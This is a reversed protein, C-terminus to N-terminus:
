LGIRQLVFKVDQRVRSRLDLRGTWSPQSKLHDLIESATAFWGNRASVARIRDEFRPDAGGNKTFSGAGLHAYVLTVGGEQELRDLNEDKLLEIFNVVRDGNATPFWYNVYPKDDLRYPMSPSTALLNIDQYTFRRVYQIRERAVDGWFYPSHPDHGSFEYAIAFSAAWRLPAVAYLHSGWYLNEKNLSHNVQMRPYHGLTSRFTEIGSLTDARLSSGGRVGHLAIEFGKAQLDVIFQRYAPDSLSEGRDPDHETSHAPLVWVTKTTRLGYRQLVEYIPQLRELTAMDTDDVISFAFKHGGPFSVSPATPPVAIWAIGALVVALTSVAARRWTLRKASRVTTPPATV